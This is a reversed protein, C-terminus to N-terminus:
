APTVEGDVRGAIWLSGDDAVLTRGDKDVLTVLSGDVSSFAEWSQPPAPCKWDTSPGTAGRGTSDYHHGEYDKAKGISSSM